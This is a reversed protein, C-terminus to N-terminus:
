FPRDTESADRLWFVDGSLEGGDGVRRPTEVRLGRDDVALDEHQIGVAPRRELCQMVPRRGAERDNSRM